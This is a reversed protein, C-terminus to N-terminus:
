DMNESSFQAVERRTSRNTTNEVFWNQRTTIRALSRKTEKEGQILGIGTELRSDNRLIEEFIM